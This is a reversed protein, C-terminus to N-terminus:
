RFSFAICVLINFVLDRTDSGEPIRTILRSTYELLQIGISINYADVHGFHELITSSDITECLLRRECSTAKASLLGARYRRPQKSKEPM